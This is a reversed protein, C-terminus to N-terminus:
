FLLFDTRYSADYVFITAWLPLLDIDQNINTTNEALGDYKTEWGM